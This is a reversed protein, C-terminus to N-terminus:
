STPSGSLINAYLNEYQHLANHISFKEFARSRARAGMRQHREPDTLLERVRKAMSEVDGVEELYGTVGDEVVEPLGGVRTAVVPLGCGMAELAVLGFSEIQSPLLLLDCAALVPIVRDIMGLFIAEETAGAEEIMAEVKGLEPGTGILVLKCPIERKVRLFIQVVDEVRKVPRFNSIHVLLREGNPAFRQRYVTPDFGQYDEPDIFNPIVAIDERCSFIRRVEERLFQSVASVGDSRDIAFRVVPLFSPDRGVLTIDTGHLTTIVKVKGGTIERAMLASAAHPIAYHAHILDARIHEAVYVLRSALAQDYLPYEFLPYEVLTVEHYFVNPLSLDLRFPVKYSVFHVQHGKKAMSMGLEAAVAGSGGYTPWCTIIIKVGPGGPIPDM